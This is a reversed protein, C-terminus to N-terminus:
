YVQQGIYNGPPSYRCCVIVMRNCTGSGCGIQTSKRWVVQTYHGTSSEFQYRPSFTYSEKEDTWMNVAGQATLNTGMALNEGYGSNAEHEFACGSSVLHDVWAQASAAVSASWTVPPLPEWTQGAPYNTPKTVAARVVNHANVYDAGDGTAPTSTAVATSTDSRAGTRTGSDLGTSTATVTATKTGGTTSTGEGKDSCAVGFAAAALACVLKIVRM